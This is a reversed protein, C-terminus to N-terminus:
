VLSREVDQALNGDAAIIAEFSGVQHGVWAIGHSPTSELVSPRCGEHRHCWIQQLYPLARLESFGNSANTSSPSTVAFTCLVAERADGESVVRLGRLQAPGPVEVTALLFGYLAWVCIKPPSTMSCAVITAPARSGLRAEAVPLGDAFRYTREPRMPPRIRLLHVLGDEGASLATGLLCESCAFDVCRVLALHPQWRAVCEFKSATWDNDGAAWLCLTGDASGALFVLGCAGPVCRAAQQSAVLATVPAAPIGGVPTVIVSAVNDTFDGCVISGDRFGGRAFFHRESDPDSIVAWVSGLHAVSHDLLLAEREVSKCPLMVKTTSEPEWEERGPNGIPLGVDLGQGGLASGSVDPVSRRYCRWSSDAQVVLLRTINDKAIHYSHLAVVPNQRWRPADRRSRRRSPVASPRQPEESSHWRRLQCQAAVGACVGGVVADGGGITAGVVIGSSADDGTGHGQSSCRLLSPSPTWMGSDKKAFGAKASHPELFLCAPTQGFHLVQQEKARRQKSDVGYSAWDVDYTCPYYVNMAETAADGTQKCGWILDIWGHLKQSVPASELALRHEHVFHYADAAWAMLEVNDVTTRDQCMGFHLGNVNILCEPLYFFEPIMERVDSVESTCSRWSEPLSNFLRDPVDYRGGQLAMALSRFPELRIMFYMVFAPTSYHTGYHYAEEEMDRSTEYKDCLAQRRDESGVDGLTRSLDRFYCELEAEDCRSLVTSPPESHSPNSLVWPMVPYQSTDEICRGSLRNLKSLYGFNSLKGQQWQTLLDQMDQKRTKEHNELLRTVEEGIFERLTPRADKKKPPPETEVVNEASDGRSTADCLDCMSGDLTHLSAPSSMHRKLVKQKPSSPQPRLRPPAPFDFTSSVRLLGPRCRAACGWAAAPEYSRRAGTEEEVAEAVKGDLLKRLQLWVEDRVSVGPGPCSKRRGSKDADLPQWSRAKTTSSSYSHGEQVEQPGGFSNKRVVSPPRPEETQPFHLQLPASGDVFEIELATPRHLFRRPRIADRNIQTLRFRRIKMKKPSSTTQRPNSATSFASAKVATSDKSSARPRLEMTRPRLVFTCARQGERRIWICRASIVLQGDVDGNSLDSACSRSDDSRSRSRSNSSRSISRSSSRSRSRSSSTCTRDSSSNSSSSSICRRSGHKAPRLLVRRCDSAGSKCLGWPRQGECSRMTTAASSMSFSELWWEDVTEVDAAEFSGLTSPTATAESPLVPVASAAPFKATTAPVSAAPERSRASPPPPHVWGHPHYSYWASGPARCSRCTHRWARVSWSRRLSALQRARSRELKRAQRIRHEVRTWFFALESVSVEQPLDVFASAGVLTSGAHISSATTPARSAFTEFTGREAQESTRQLKDQYVEFFRFTCAVMESSSKEITEKFEWREVFTKNNESVSKNRNSGKAKGGQKGGHTYVFSLLSGQMTGLPDDWQLTPRLWEAKGSPTPQKGLFSACM